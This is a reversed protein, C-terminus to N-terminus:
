LGSSSILHLLTIEVEIFSLLFNVTSSYRFNIYPTEVVLDLTNDEESPDPVEEALCRVEPCLLDVKTLLLM